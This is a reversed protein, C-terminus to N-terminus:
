SEVKEPPRVRRYMRAREFVLMRIVGATRASIFRTNPGKSPNQTDTHVHSPPGTALLPRARAYTALWATSWTGRSESPVCEASRSAAITYQVCGTAPPDWANKLAHRVTSYTRVSRSRNPM